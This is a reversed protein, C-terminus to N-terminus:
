KPLSPSPELSKVNTCEISYEKWWVDSNTDIVMRTHIIHDDVLGDGAFGVCGFELSPSMNMYFFAKNAPWYVVPWLGARYAADIEAFTKNVTVATFDSNVTMEIVFMGGGGGAGGGVGKEELEKIKRRAVADYGAAGLYNEYKIRNM